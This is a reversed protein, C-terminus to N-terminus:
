RTATASCCAATVVEPKRWKGEPRRIERNADVTNVGARMIAANLLSAEKRVKERRFEDGGGGGQAINGRCYFM